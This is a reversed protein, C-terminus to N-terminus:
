DLRHHRGTPREAAPPPLPLPETVLGSVAQQPMSPQSVPPRLTETMPDPAPGSRSAHLAVWPRTEAGRGTGTGHGNRDPPPEVAAHRGVRLVEPVAAGRAPASAATLAPEALRRRGARPPAPVPGPRVADRAQGSPHETGEGPGAPSQVVPRRGSRSGITPSGDVARRGDPRRAPDVARGSGTSSDPWPAWPGTLGPSVPLHEGPERLRRRGGGPIPPPLVWPATESGRPSAAPPMRAASRRGDVVTPRVDTPRVDTPRVDPDVARHGPDAWAPAGHAPPGPRATIPPAADVPLPGNVAPARRVPIATTPPSLDPASLDDVPSWGAARSAAPGAVPLATTPQATTSRSAAPAPAAEAPYAATPASRYGDDASPRLEVVSGTAAPAATGTDATGTDATGTDATGTDATAVALHEPVELPLVTRVPYPSRGRVVITGRMMRRLQADLADADRTPGTAVGYLMWRAGDVGVFLSTAAGSTAHLERGWDGQFSRVRAGGERLSADIEKVLDPWLRSSKPAALASVSLRGEPVAVHVAQMRGKEAPDVDVTGREPVPVRVAGFDVTGAALTVEPDLDEVDHPGDGPVHVPEYAAEDGADLWDQQQATM